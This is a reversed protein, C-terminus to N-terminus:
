APRHRTAYLAIGMAALAAACVVITQAATLPLYLILVGAFMVSTAILKDTVERERFFLWGFLVALVIGARKISVAIVVDVFAYSAFQLLVSVGEAAGATGIWKANAGLAGALPEHRALALLWFFVCMGTGYSFAVTYIDSMQVLKKDLPNTISFLFAVMLMYRSGRERVIARFPATWGEAFLKRHMAVSGAVILAVGMLKIAPPLEGLMIYGTPILFIPTFALFPVCLSMPSVQLAKFYLLNCLSVLVVDILLYILYTPAPALHVGDIGFLSGGDRIEVPAVNSVRYTLAIAYVLATAVKCWMTAPILARNELAKKRAVDAFVNTASMAAAIGLGIPSLSLGAM